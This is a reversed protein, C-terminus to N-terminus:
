PALIPALRDLARAVLHELLVFTAEYDEDSGGFPDPVTPPVGEPDEGAAFSSLLAAKEGAGLETVRLLHSPSMVLVLDAWALREEDAPAARHDSLDLGHRSAARVSGESAPGGAAAGAGASRVEVHTWGRGALDRLTIVEALPSRCTNGTCVYLLRFPEAPPNDAQM